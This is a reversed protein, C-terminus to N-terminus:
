NTKLSAERQKCARVKQLVVLCIGICLAVFSMSVIADISLCIWDGRLEITPSAVPYGGNFNGNLRPKGYSLELLKDRVKGQQANSAREVLKSATYFDHKTTLFEFVRQLTTYEIALKSRVNFEGRAEHSRRSDLADIGLGVNNCALYYLEYSSAEESPVHFIWDFIAKSRHIHFKNPNFRSYSRYTM